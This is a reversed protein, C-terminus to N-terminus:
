FYTYDHKLFIIGAGQKEEGRQRQRTVLKRKQMTMKLVGDMKFKIFLTTSLTSCM